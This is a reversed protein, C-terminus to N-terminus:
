YNTTSMSVIMPVIMGNLIKAQIYPGNLSTPYTSFIRGFPQYYTQQNSSLSNGSTLSSLGLNYQSLQSTQYPFHSTGDYGAQNLTVLRENNSSIRNNSLSDKISTLSKTNDSKMHQSIIGKWKSQINKKGILPIVREIENLLKLKHNQSLMHLLKQIIFNGYSDKIIDIILIILFIKGLTHELKLNVFDVGFQPFSKFVFEMMTSTYIGKCLAEAVSFIKSLLRSVKDKRYSKLATIIVFIGNRNIILDDFCNEVLVLAQKSHYNIIYKQVVFTTYNSKSFFTFNSHIVHFLISHKSAENRYFNSLIVEVLNKGYKSPILGLWTAESNLSEYINDCYINNIETLFKIIEIVSQYSSTLALSKFDFQSIFSILRSEDDNLIEFCFAKLIEIGNASNLILSISQLFASEIESKHRATSQKYILIANSLDTESFLQLSLTEIFESDEAISHKSQILTKHNTAQPIMVSDKFFASKGILSDNSEKETIDIEIDKILDEEEVSTLKSNLRSKNALITRNKGKKRLSFDDTLDYDHSSEVEKSKFHDIFRSCKYNKLPATSTKSESPEMLSSYGFISSAETDNQTSNLNNLDVEYAKNSLILKSTM